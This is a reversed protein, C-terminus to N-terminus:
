CYSGNRRSRMLLNCLIKGGNENHGLLRVEKLDELSSLPLHSIIRRVIWGVDVGVKDHDELIVPEM